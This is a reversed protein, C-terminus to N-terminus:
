QNLFLEMNSLLLNKIQDFDIGEEIFILKRENNINSLEKLTGKVKLDNGPLPSIGKGLVMLACNNSKNKLMYISYGLIGSSEYVTGKLTMPKQYESPNKCVECIDVSGFNCSCLFVNSLTFFLLFLRLYNSCQKFLRMIM